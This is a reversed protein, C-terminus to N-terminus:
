KLKGNEDFYINYHRTFGLINKGKIGVDYIYAGNIFLKNAGLIKYGKYEKQIYRIITQSIDSQRIDEKAYQLIGEQTFKLKYELGDIKFQAEYLKDDDEYEWEIKNAKPYHQEIYTLIKSPIASPPLKEGAFISVTGVTVLFTFTLIIERM